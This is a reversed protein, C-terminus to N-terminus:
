NSSKIEEALFALMMRVAKEDQYHAPIEEKIEKTLWINGGYTFSGTHNMYLYFMPECSDDEVSIWVKDQEDPQQVDLGRKKAFNITTKSIEM